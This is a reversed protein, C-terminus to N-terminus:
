RSLLTIYDAWPSVATTHCTGHCFRHSSRRIAPLVMCHFIVSSLHFLSRGTGCHSGFSPSVNGSYCDYGHLSYSSVQLAGYYAIGLCDLVLM